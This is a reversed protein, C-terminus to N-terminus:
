ERTMVMLGEGSSAPRVNPAEPKRTNRSIVNRIIKGATSAPQSIDKTSHKM